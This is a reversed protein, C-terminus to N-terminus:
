DGTKPVEPPEDFRIKGALLDDLPQAALSESQRRVYGAMISLTEPKTELVTGYLNNDLAIELAQDEGALAADYAKLRGRMGGAMTAVRRSIGQDGAGLERLSREFDATAVEILSRACGAADSHGKLRRMVLFVHLVVMDFRGDLTDPVAFGAYFEPQRAQRIIHSYLDTAARQDRSRGFLRDFM